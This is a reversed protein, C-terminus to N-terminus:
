FKPKQSPVNEIVIKNLTMKYTEIMEFEEIKKLTYNTKKNKFNVKM